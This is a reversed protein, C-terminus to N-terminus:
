NNLYYEAIVSMEYDLVKVKVRTIDVQTTLKTNYQFFTNNSELSPEKYTFENIHGNVFRYDFRETGIVYDKREVKSEIELIVIPTYDVKQITNLYIALDIYNEVFYSRDSIRYLYSGKTLALQSIKNKLEKNESIVQKLVYLAVVLFFLCFFIIINDLRIGIIVLILALLIDIITEAFNYIFNILWSKIDYLM